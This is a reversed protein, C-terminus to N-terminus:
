LKWIAGVSADSVYAEGSQKNVVMDGFNTGSNTPIHWDWIQNGGSNYKAVHYPYSKGFVYVNNGNTQVKYFNDSGTKLWTQGDAIMTFGIHLLLSLFGLITVRNLSLRKQCETKIKKSM